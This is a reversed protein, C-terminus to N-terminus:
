LSQMEMGVGDKEQCDKSIIAFCMNPHLGLHGQQAVVEGEPGGTTEGGRARAEDRVAAGDGNRVRPLPNLAEPALPDQHIGPADVRPQDQGRLM